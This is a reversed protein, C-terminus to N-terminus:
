LSVPIPFAGGCATSRTGHGSKFSRSSRSCLFLLLVTLGTDVMDRAWGARPCIKCLVNKVAPSSSFLVKRFVSFRTRVTFASVSLFPFHMESSCSQFFYTRGPPGNCGLCWITGSLSAQSLGTFNPPIM